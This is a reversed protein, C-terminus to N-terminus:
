GPSGSTQGVAITGTHSRTITFTPGFSTLVLPVTERVTATVSKRQADITCNVNAVAISATSAAAEVCTQRAAAVDLTVSGSRLGAVDVQSAGAQAGTLAGNDLRGAAAYIQLLDGVMTALSVLVLAFVLAFMVAVQGAQKTVSSDM